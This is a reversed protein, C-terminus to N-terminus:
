TRVRITKISSYSLDRGRVCNNSVCLYGPLDIYYLIKAPSCFVDVATQKSQSKLDEISSDVEREQTLHVRHVGTWKVENHM